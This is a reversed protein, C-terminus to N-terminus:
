VKISHLIDWFVPNVWLFVNKKSLKIKAISQLLFQTFFM